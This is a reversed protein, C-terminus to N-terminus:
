EDAGDSGSSPAFADLDKLEATGSIEVSLPDRGEIVDMQLEFVGLRPATVSNITLVGTEANFVTSTVGPPLHKVQGRIAGPAHNESHVNIYWLGDMLQTEQEETLTVVGKTTGVQESVPGLGILVGANEGRDATGHFHAAIAPSELSWSFGYYFENTEDNYIGTFAGFNDTDTLPPVEETGILPIDSYVHVEALSIAPWLLLAPLCYMFKATNKM